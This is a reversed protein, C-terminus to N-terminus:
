QALGALTVHHINLYIWLTQFTFVLSAWKRQIRSCGSALVTTSVKPNGTDSLLKWNVLKPPLKSLQSFGWPPGSEQRSAWLYSSTGRRSAQPWTSADGVSWKGANRFENRLGLRCGTELVGWLQAHVMKKCSPIFLSSETEQLHIRVAKSVSYFKVLYFLSYLHLRAKYGLVAYVIWPDSTSISLPNSQSHITRPFVIIQRKTTVGSLWLTAVSADVSSIM